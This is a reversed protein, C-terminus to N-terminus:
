NALKESLFEEMKQRQHASMGGIACMCATFGVSFSLSVALTLPALILGLMCIGACLFQGPLNLVSKVVIQIQALLLLAFLAISLNPAEGRSALLVLAPVLFDRLKFYPGCDCEGVADLRSLPVRILSLSALFAACFVGEAFMREGVFLAYIFGASTSFILSFFTAFIIGEQCIRWM